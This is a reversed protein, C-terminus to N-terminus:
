DVCTVAVSLSHSGFVDLTAKVSEAISQVNEVKQNISTLSSTRHGTEASVNPVKYGSNPPPDPEPPCKAELNEVNMLRCCAYDGVKLARDILTEPKHFLASGAATVTLKIPEDKKKEPVVSVATCGALAICAAAIMMTQMASRGASKGHQCLDIAGALDAFLVSNTNPIM